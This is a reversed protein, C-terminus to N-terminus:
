LPLIEAVQDLVELAWSSSLWLASVVVPVHILQSAKRKSVEDRRDYRATTTVNAHGAMKQVTVLDAGAGLLNSIFTRRLDHPSVNQVRAERARKCLIDMVAQDNLRRAKMRGSAFVPVFLPGSKRGRACLWATLAERAGDAVYVLRAKNGKGSRVTLSGTEAEYDTVDLAVAESRRLGSGYLVGLLAADRAGRASSDSTCATFLASMEGAGLARGRPLTSGRVSSIDVARLYSETDMQGLRWAAKLVGKLAALMKNATASAYRDALTARIAANHQYRLNPWPLTASNCRGGTLLHAITDLAQTMARRSGSALSALYVSPPHQSALPCAIPALVEPALSELALVLTSM